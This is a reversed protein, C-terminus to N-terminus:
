AGDRFLHVAVGRLAPVDHVDVPLEPVAVLTIGPHARAFETVATSEAWTRPARRARDQIVAAAVRGLDTGEETLTRVAADAEPGLPPSPTVFRNVVVAAARMGGIALREVFYGAEELSAPNPATVIV